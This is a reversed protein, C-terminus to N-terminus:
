AIGSCACRHYHLVRDFSGVHAILAQSLRSAQQSSLIRIAGLVTPNRPSYFTYPLISHLSIIIKHIVCIALDQYSPPRRGIFMVDFCCWLWVVRVDLDDWCLGWLGRRLWRRDLDYRLCTGIQKRCVECALARYILRAVPEPFWCISVIIEICMCIYTQWRYHYFHAFMDVYYIMRSQCM